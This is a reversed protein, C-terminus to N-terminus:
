VQNIAPVAKTGICPVLTLVPLEQGEDSRSELCNQRQRVVGSKSDSDDPVRSWVCSLRTSVSLLCGMAMSLVSFAVRGHETNM